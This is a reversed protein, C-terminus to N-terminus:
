EAKRRLSRASSFGDPYRRRLNEINERMAEGLRRDPADRALAVYWLADGLEARLAGEDLPHLHRKLADSFEGAEGALGLAANLLRAREDRGPAESRLALRRRENADM